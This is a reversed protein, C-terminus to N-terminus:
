RDFSVHEGELFFSFLKSERGNDNDGHAMSLSFFLSRSYEGTVRREVIYRSLSTFVLSLSLSLRGDIM